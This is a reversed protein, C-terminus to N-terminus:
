DRRYYYSKVWEYQTGKDVCWKVFGESQEESFLIWDNLLNKYYKIADQISTKYDVDNIKEVLHELKRLFGRDREINSLYLDQAIHHFSYWLSNLYIDILKIIVQQEKDGGLELAMNLYSIRDETRLYLGYWRYPRIDKPDLIMWDELIPKLLNEELPYVLVQHIDTSEEFLSFLWHVYDQQIHIDWQQVQSIFSDLCKFSEKRLGKDKLLCYQKFLFYNDSNKNEIINKLINKM